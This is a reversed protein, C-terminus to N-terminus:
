MGKEPPAMWRKSKFQQTTRLIERIMNDFAADDAVNAANLVGQLQPDASMELIAEETLPIIKTHQDRLNGRSPRYTGDGQAWYGLCPVSVVFRSPYRAYYSAGAATRHWTGDLNRRRLLYRTTGDSDYGYEANGEIVTGLRWDQPLAAM